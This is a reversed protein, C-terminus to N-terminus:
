RVTRRSPNKFFESRLKKHKAPRHPRDVGPCHPARPLDWPHATPSARHEEREGGVYISVATISPVNLFFATELVEKGHRCFVRKKNNFFCKTTPIKVSLLLSTFHYRTTNITHQVVTRSMHKEQGIMPVVLGGTGGGAEGGKRAYIFKM